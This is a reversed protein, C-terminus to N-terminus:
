WPSCRPDDDSAVVMVFKIGAIVKRMAAMTPCSLTLMLSTLVTAFIKPVATQTPPAMVRANKLPGFSSFWESPADDLSRWENLLSHTIPASKRTPLLEQQDSQSMKCPGIQLDYM